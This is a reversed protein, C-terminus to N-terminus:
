GGVSLLAQHSDAIGVRGEKEGLKLTVVKGEVAVLISREM